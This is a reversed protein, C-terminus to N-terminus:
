GGGGGSVSLGGGFTAFLHRDVADASGFLSSDIVDQEGGDIDRGVAARWTSDSPRDASASKQGLWWAM